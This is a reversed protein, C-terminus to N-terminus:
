RRSMNFEFNFGDQSLGRTLRNGACTFCRLRMGKLWLSVWLRVENLQIKGKHKALILLFNVDQLKRKNQVHNLIEGWTTGTLPAGPLREARM